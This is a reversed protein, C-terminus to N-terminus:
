YPNNSAFLAPLAGQLFVMFWLSLALALARPPSTQSGPPTPTANKVGLQRKHPRGSGLTETSSISTSRPLLLPTQETATEDDLVHPSTQYQSTPIPVTNAGSPEAATSM